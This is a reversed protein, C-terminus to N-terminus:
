IKGSDRDGSIETVSMRLKTHSSSKVFSIKIVIVFYIEKIGTM